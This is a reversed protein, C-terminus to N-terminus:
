ASLSIVLNLIAEATAKTNGMVLVDAKMPDLNPLKTLKKQGIDDDSAALAYVVGGADPVMRCGGAFDWPGGKATAVAGNIGGNGLLAQNLCNSGVFVSRGLKVLGSQLTSIQDDNFVNFGHSVDIRLSSNDKDGLGVNNVRVVKQGPESLYRVIVPKELASSWIRGSSPDGIHCAVIVHQEQDYLSLQVSSGPEGNAFKKTNDLPDALLIYKGPEGSQGTEEGLFTIYPFYTRCGAILCEESSVDQGTVLTRDGAKIRVNEPGTVLGRQVILMSDQLLERGLHYFLDATTMTTTTMNM